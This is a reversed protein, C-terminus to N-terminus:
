TVSGITYKINDYFKVAVIKNLNNNKFYELLNQSYIGSDARVLRVKHEKLCVQLTEVLSYTYNNLDSTNRSRM